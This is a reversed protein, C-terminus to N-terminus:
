LGDFNGSSVSGTARSLLAVQVNFMNVLSEVCLQLIDLSPRRHFVKRLIALLSKFIIQKQCM